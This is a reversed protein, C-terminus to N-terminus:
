SSGSHFEAAPKSVAVEQKESHDSDGYRFTQTLCRLCWGGQYGGAKIAPLAKAWEILGPEEMLKNGNKLHQQYILDGLTEIGRLGETPHQM